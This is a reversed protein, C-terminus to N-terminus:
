AYLINLLIVKCSLYKGINQMMQRGTMCSLMALCHTCTHTHRHECTFTLMILGVM